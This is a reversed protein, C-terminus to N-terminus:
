PHPTAKSAWELHITWNILQMFSFFLHFFDFEHIAREPVTELGADSCAYFGIVEQGCEIGGDLGADIVEFDAAACAELGEIEVALFVSEFHHGDVALTGLTDGLLSKVTITKDFSTAGEILSYTGTTQDSAVTLTCEYPRASIYGFATDGVRVTGGPAMNAINLDLTGGDFQLESVEGLVGTLVAGTSVYLKRIAGGEQVDVVTGPKMDANSLLAGNRVEVTAANLTVKELTGGNLVKASANTITGSSALGNASVLLSGGSDVTFTKLESPNMEETDGKLVLKGGHVDVDTRVGWELTINGGENVTTSGAIKGGGFVYLYGPENVTTDTATGGSSVALSGGDVVTGIAKAKEDVIM